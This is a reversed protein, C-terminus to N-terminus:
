RAYALGDPVNGTEVSSTIALKDLDVIQVQKAGACAVFARKGDPTLQIGSPQAAMTLTRVLEKTAADYVLLTNSAPDSVLVRKGDLTFKVRNALKTTTPLTTVVSDSKPDIISIGGNEARSATWLESGAPALDIGEPGKVVAIRKLGIMRPALSLDIVSVDNSGINATYLKKEGPVVVVMHTAEAGSGAILDFRDAAADYRGVARSGEFTIYFKSGASMIGHPRLLGPLDVRRKEKRGPVDIVSITTGPLPGTGYNAVVALTGDGSAAVEHPANGVPITAVSKLTAVDVLTLTSDGKNVVLLTDAPASGGLGVALIASLLARRM